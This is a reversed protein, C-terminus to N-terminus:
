KPLVGLAKLIVVLVGSGVITSLIWQWNKEWFKNAIYVRNIKVYVEKIFIPYDYTEDKGQVKIKVTVILELKKNGYKLPKVEWHWTTKKDDLILQSETNKSFIEFDDGILKVTMTKGVKVENIDSRDPISEFFNEDKFIEVIVPDKKGLTMQEACQFHLYGEKLRKLEENIEDEVEVPLNNGTVDNFAIVETFDEGSLGEGPNFNIESDVKDKLAIEIKKRKKLNKLTFASISFVISLIVVISAVVLELIGM